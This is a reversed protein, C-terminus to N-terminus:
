AHHAAARKAQAERKRHEKDAKADMREQKAEADWDLHMDMVLDHMKAVDGSKYARVIDPHRHEFEDQLRKKMGDKVSVSLSFRPPKRTVKPEKKSKANKPPNFTQPERYALKLTMLNMLSVKHTGGELLEDIMAEWFETLVTKLVEQSFELKKNGYENLRAQLKKILKMPVPTAPKKSDGARMRVREEPSTTTTIFPSTSQTLETTVPTVEPSKAKRTARPKSPGSSSRKGSSGSARRAARDSQSSERASKKPAM